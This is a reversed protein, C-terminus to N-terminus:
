EGDMRPAEYFVRRNLRMYEDESQVKGLAVLRKACARKIAEDQSHTKFFNCEQKIGMQFAYKTDFVTCKQKYKKDVSCYVCDYCKTTM